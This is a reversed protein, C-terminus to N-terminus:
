GQCVVEAPQYYVLNRTGDPATADYFVAQDAILGTYNTMVRAPDSHYLIRGYDDLLLGEGDQGVLETLSNLIPATAPNTALDTRGILVGQITGSQDQVSAIFSVQAANEGSIPPATYSQVDIGNLALQVGAQEEQPTQASQYQDDPYGVLLNGQSDLLYLQRFYPVSRLKYEVVKALEDDRATYLKPDSALDKILSQGSELFYPVGEAAIKAANEMQDQLLERAANGAVIWDGVMLSVMLLLALPAINSLFRIQLSKESPAPILSGRGGWQAPMAVAMVQAFISAFLLELGMGLTSTGLHSIAYDMRSALLGRTTLPAAVMTLLPYFVSLVVAMMIPNQIMRFLRTRYRQHIAAGFLLAFLIVEVLTFPNHTDWLARTLGGAFGVLAAPSPGLLGGALMWPLASFIMIAVGVPEQPIFPQPLAQSAPPLRVGIFLNTLPALILFLVLLGSQRNGWKRTYNRLNWSLFFILALAIFWGAWGALGQPFDIFPPTSLLSFIIKM